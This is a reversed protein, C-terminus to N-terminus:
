STCVASLVFASKVRKLIAMALMKQTSMSPSTGNHAASPFTFPTAVSSLEAVGEGIGGIKQLIGLMSEVLVWPLM